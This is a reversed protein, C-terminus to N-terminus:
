NHRDISKRIARRMLNIMERERARVRWVPGAMGLVTDKIGCADPLRIGLTWMDYPPRLRDPSTEDIKRWSYGKMRFLQLQRFFTEDWDGERAIVYQRRSRRILKSITASSKTALVASGVTSGLVPLQLGVELTYDGGAFAMMQMSCDNQVSLTVAEGSEGHVEDIIDRLRDVNTVAKTLQHGMWASRLSPSYGLTEPDILLYGSDVLTKLLQDTSSRALDFCEAIECARRPRGSNALFDMIDLARTASKSQNKRHAVM